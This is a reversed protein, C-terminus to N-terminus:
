GAGENEKPVGDAESYADAALDGSQGLVTDENNQATRDRDMGKM